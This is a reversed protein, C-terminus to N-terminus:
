IDNWPQMNLTRGCYTKTRSPMRLTVLKQCSSMVTKSRRSCFRHLRLVCYPRCLKCNPNCLSFKMLVEKAPRVEFYFSVEQGSRYSRGRLLQDSFTALAVGFSGGIERKFSTTNIVRAVARDLERQM